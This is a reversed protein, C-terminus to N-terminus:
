KCMYCYVHKLITMQMNAASELIDLLADLKYENCEDLVFILSTFVRINLGINVANLFVTLRSFCWSSLLTWMKMVNKEITVCSCSVFMLQASFGM